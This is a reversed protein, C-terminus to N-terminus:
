LKQQLDMKQLAENWFWAVLIQLTWAVCLLLCYINEPCFGWNNAALLFNTGAVFTWWRLIWKLNPKLFDMELLGKSVIHLDQCLGEWSLGTLVAFRSFHHYFVDSHSALFDETVVWTLGLVLGWFQCATYALMSYSSYQFSWPKPHLKTTACKSTYTLLQNQYGINHNLYSINGSFKHKWPKTALLPSRPFAWAM